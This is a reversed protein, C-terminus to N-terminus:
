MVPPISSAGPTRPDVIFGDWARRVVVLEQFTLTETDALKMLVVPDVSAALPLPPKTPQKNPSATM